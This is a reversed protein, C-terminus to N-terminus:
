ERMDFNFMWQVGFKDTCSGYYAQWFTESLEHEIVGGESLERFLRETEEKSDPQLNIYVNNGQTCNFGMSEPADSGMLTFVGGMIPFSIHMVLDAVEEPVSPMEDSPPIESFRYIGGDFEGGFVSKYFTFAEETEGSFNLYVSVSAM